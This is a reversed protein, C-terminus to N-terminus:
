LCPTTAVTATCCPVSSPLVSQAGTNTRQGDSGGAGQGETAMRGHPGRCQPMASRQPCVSLVLNPQLPGAPSCRRDAASYPPAPASLAAARAVPPNVPAAHTPASPPANSPLPRDSIPSVTLPGPAPPAAAVGAPPGYPPAPAGYAPPAAGYVRKWDDPQPPASAAAGYVPSAYRPDMGPAAHHTAPASYAPAPGPAPGAVQYGPAPPMHPMASAQDPPTHQPAMASYDLGQAPAPAGVPSPFPHSPDGPVHQTAPDAYVTFPLSQVTAPATVPSPFRPAPEPSQGYDAYRPDPGTRPSEGYDAYRPDGVAGSNPNDGYDAYRPDGPLGEGGSSQPGAPASHDLVPASYAPGAPSAFRYDQALGPVAASYVPAGAAPAGSVAAAGVASLADAPATLPPAPASQEPERFDLLPSSYVLGGLSDGHGGGPGPGPASHAPAVTEPVDPAQSEFSCMDEFPIPVLHDSTHARRYSSSPSETRPGSYAPSLTEAPPHASPSGGPGGPDTLVPAPGPSSRRGHHSYRKTSGAELPDQPSRILSRHLPTRRAIASPGPLPPAPAPWGLGVWGGVDSFIEKPLFLFKNFPGSIQPRNESCLSKKRGRVWGGMCGVLPPPPTEKLWPRTHARNTTVERGGDALRRGGTNFQWGM